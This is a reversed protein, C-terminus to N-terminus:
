PLDLWGEREARLALETRSTVEFLEFLRTLHAEVTKRAVGLDRAIEDNSRSAVLGQVIRRERPALRFAGSERATRLQNRTFTSGGAAVRRIAEVVDALPATKLLYGAAGLSNGQDIDSQQSRNSLIVKISNPSLKEKNIKDLLEFGDMEPMIIDLLIIDPNLGNKFKELVQAGSEATYVEFNSQSFKLAYMDLLFSDDDVILIKKKEGEM